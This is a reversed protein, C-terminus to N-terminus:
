SHDNNRTENKLEKKKKINQLWSHPSLKEKRQKLASRGIKALFVALLPATLKAMDARIKGVDQKNKHAYRLTLKRVTELQLTNTVGHQQLTQELATWSM